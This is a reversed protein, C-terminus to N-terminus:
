VCVCVRWAISQREGTLVVCLVHSEKKDKVCALAGKIWRSHLRMKDNKTLSRTVLDRRNKEQYSLVFGFVNAASILGDCM